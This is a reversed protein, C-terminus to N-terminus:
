LMTPTMVNMPVMGNHSTHQYWIHAMTHHPNTDRIGCHSMCQWVIVTLQLYVHVYSDTSGHMKM